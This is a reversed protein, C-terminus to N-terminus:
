LWYYYILYRFNQKFPLEWTLHKVVVFNCAYMLTYFSAANTCNKLSISKFYIMWKNMWENLLCNILESQTGPVLTAASFLVPFILTLCLIHAYICASFSQIPHFPSSPTCLSRSLEFFSCRVGLPSTADLVAAPLFALPQLFCPPLPMSHPYPSPELCPFLKHWSGLPLLVSPWETQHSSPFFILTSLPRSSYDSAM